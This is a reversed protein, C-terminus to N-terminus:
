SQSLLRLALAEQEELDMMKPRKADRDAEDEETEADSSEGGSSMDDESASGLTVQMETGGLGAEERDRLKRALKKTRRKERATDRDEVDAETMMRRGEEVRRLIQEEPAGEARFDAETGMEYLPHAIGDDDFVLREGKAGKQQLEKKRLKREAKKAKESSGHEMEVEPVSEDLAHDHRKLVMFDEDEGDVVSTFDGESEQVLKAHHESLVTNNKRNRMKDIKTVVKPQALEKSEVNNDDEEEESESDSEEEVEAEEKLQKQLAAQQYSVNKGQAKKMIKIKPAGPLGLAHAFEETPLAHVDFVSKEKQLYISRIYSVFAKQALYKFEPDKFCFSQLQPQITRQKSARAKIETIPIRKRELLALMGERESPLLILLAQGASEYRATRGVRHIYTEADEPADAQIVWEVAPFDLGRAAIDTCFLFAHKTRSFTDFIELRKQQKQKGHLLMLPIGPHLRRFAEYVMRVQKCSSLFVIGKTTLHTKIFSFLLDLKSPLACEMFHQHLDKHTAHEAKEHVAVYEPSNLSLRALDKVSKTQTASFLLTQREKPLNDLIANLYKSFGLDLIRDAEDLVLMQLNSCSFQPTQDMHQLLRGPTCILINMRSIRDQEGVFDKGGIVLGASFNHCKAFQCLVQFIQVALERTPSIVMAGVGDNKGWKQRYLCEVLPILFALTKGSGTKAAGLIDRNCLALPLAMRQIDTM